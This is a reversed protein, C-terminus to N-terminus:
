RKVKVTEVTQNKLVVNGGSNKKVPTKSQPTEEKKCKDLDVSGMDKVNEMFKEKPYAIEKSSDWPNIVYVTDATVKKISYQHNTTILPSKGSETMGCTSDEQKFGIVLAYRDNNKEKQELFTTMKEKKSTYTADVGLLVHAVEEKGGSRLPDSLSANQSYERKFKDADETIQEKRWEAFALEFIKMDIDGSSYTKTLDGYDGSCVQEPTFTYSKNVGKLTVTVSGDTNQKIAEKIAKAGEPTDKLATIQSASHHLYAM